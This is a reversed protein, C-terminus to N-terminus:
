SITFNLPAEPVQRDVVFSVKNSPASERGLLNTETAWFTGSTVEGNLAPFTLTFAISGGGTPGVAPVNPGKVPAAAGIQYYVNTFALGVLPTGNTHKTGETYRAVLSVTNDDLLIMPGGITFDTPTEPSDASDLYEEGYVSTYIDFLTQASLSIRSQTWQQYEPDYIDKVIDYIGSGRKVIKVRLIPTNVIKSSREVMAVNEFTGM